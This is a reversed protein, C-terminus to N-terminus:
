AQNMNRLTWISKLLRFPFILATIISGVGFFININRIYFNYFDLKEMNTFHGLFSNIGKEDMFTQFYNLQSILHFILPISIFILGTKVYQLHSFWAFKTFFIYRGLTWFCVIFLTTLYYFPYDPVNQYIPILCILVLLACIVWSLLEFVLKLKLM